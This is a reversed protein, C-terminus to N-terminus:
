PILKYTSPTVISPKINMSQWYDAKYDLLLQEGPLVRKKTWIGIQVSGDRMKIYRVELNSLEQSTHNLSRTFNGRKKGDVEIYFHNTECHSGGEILDIESKDLELDSLVTFLYPSEIIEKAHSIQFEGSYVGIFTGEPISRADPRLFVGNGIKDNIKSVALNPRIGYTDLDSLYSSMEEVTLQVTADFDYSQFQRAILAAHDLRAKAFPLRFNRGVPQIAGVQIAPPKKARKLVSKDKPLKEYRNQEPEDPAVGKWDCDHSTSERNSTWVRKVAKGREREVEQNRSSSSRTVRDIAPSASSSVKASTSGPRSSSSSSSGSGNSSSSRLCM